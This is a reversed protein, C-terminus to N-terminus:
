PEVGPGQTSIRYTVTREEGGRRLLITVEERTALADALAALATEDALHVDDFSLLSDRALLGLADLATDSSTTNVRYPADPDRRSRRLKRLTGGLDVAVSRPLVFGGEVETVGLAARREVPTDRVEVGAATWDVPPDLPDGTLRIRSVREGTRRDRLTLDVQPSTLLAALLAEVDGRGTLSRGDFAVLTDGVSIGILRAPSSSRARSVRYGIPTGESDLRPKFRESVEPDLWPLLVERPVRLGDELVEIGAEARQEALSPPVEFEPFTAQIPEGVLDYTLTIEQGRRRVTLVVQDDGLLAQFFGGLGGIDKIGTGGIAEIVDGNRIELAAFVSSSRISFLKFGAFAGDTYSPIIRAQRFADTALPAVVDRPVRYHGEGLEEVPSEQGRADTTSLALLGLVCATPLARELPSRM